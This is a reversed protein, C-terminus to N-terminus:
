KKYVILIPSDHYKPILLSSKLKYFGLCCLYFKLSGMCEICSMLNELYLQHFSLLRAEKVM